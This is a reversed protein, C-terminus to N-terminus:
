NYNAVWNIIDKAAEQQLNLQEDGNNRIFGHDCNMYHKYTLNTKVAKIFESTILDSGEAPANRDHSAIGLYIPIDLSLLENLLTSNSFSAWRKYTHGWFYKELSDKHKYVDSFSEAYYKYKENFEDENIKGSSFDKRLNIFCDLPGHGAGAGFLGLHTIKKNVFAAGPAVGSGESHGIVLLEADKCVGKKYLYEIVNDADEVRKERNYNEIFETRSYAEKETDNLSVGYKQFVIINWKCVYEKLHHLLFPTYVRKKDGDMEITFVSRGGSGDLLIVTPKVSIDTSESCIYCEINSGDQRPVKFEQIVCNPLSIDVTYFINKDM